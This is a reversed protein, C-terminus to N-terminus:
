APGDGVVLVDPHEYVYDDYEPDAPEALTGIGQLPNAAVRNTIEVTPGILMTEPITNPKDRTVTVLSNPDEVGAALVGRPRRLYISDGVTRYGNALLASTVTDGRYATLEHGDITIEVIDDRDIAAGPAVDPSVRFSTGTTLAATNTMPHRSSHQLYRPTTHWGPL